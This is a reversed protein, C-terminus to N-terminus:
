LSRQLQIIAALALLLTMYQLNIKFDKKSQKNIANFAVIEIAAIRYLWGMKALNECFTVILLFYTCLRHTQNLYSLFCCFDEYLINIQMQNNRHYSYSLTIWDQGFKWLIYCYTLFVYDALKTLIALFCCRDEYLINIQMQNNRHYSYSLTILDQGFKWLINCHYFFVYDALKTLIALFFVVFINMCFKLNCRITGIAAIHYLSGIKVLNECFTVTFLFYM